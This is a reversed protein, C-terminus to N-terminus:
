RSAVVDLGLVGAASGAGVVEQALRERRELEEVVHALEDLLGRSRASPSRVLSCLHAATLLAASPPGNLAPFRKSRPRPCRDSSSGSGMSNGVRAASGSARCRWSRTKVRSM